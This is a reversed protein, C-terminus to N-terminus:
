AAAMGAHEAARAERSRRDVALQRRREAKRLSELREQERAHFEAWIESVREAPSLWYSGDTLLEKLQGVAECLLVPQGSGTLCAGVVRVLGFARHELVAAEPGKNSM